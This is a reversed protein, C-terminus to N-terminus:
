PTVWRGDRWVLVVTGYRPVRNEDVSFTGGGIVVPVDRTAAMAERISDRTPEAGANRIAHGVVQMMSYGMAAWGDPAVNYTATYTDIFAKAMDNIGSPQYDAPIYTGEVASGGNDTYQKSTMGTNGVLIGDMPFGAQKAQIVINAGQAPPTSLFLCDAGSAAIKTSLATFDSDAALISEEGAIAVGGARITDRFIDSQRIYGENDRIYIVFCSTPKVNEAIAKGLAVMYVEAIETSKFVWPGVKLVGPDTATTFIPIGLDVAMPAVAQAEGSSVPGIVIDAGDATAMRNILAIAEQKESRNDEFVMEVETDGFFGDKRMEEAALRIGKVLPDGVFAFTGTSSIVVGVKVDAAAAPALAGGSFAAGVLAATVLLRKM